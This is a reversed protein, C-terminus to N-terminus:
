ETENRELSQKIRRERLLRKLSEEALKKLFSGSSCWIIEMLERDSYREMYPSSSRGGTGDIMDINVGEREFNELARDSRETRGLELDNELRRLEDEFWSEPLTEEPFPLQGRAKDREQREELESIEVLWGATQELPSFTQAPSIEIAEGKQGTLSPDTNKRPTKQAEALPGEKSHMTYYIM